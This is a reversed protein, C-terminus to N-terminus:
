ATVLIRRYSAGRDRQTLAIIKYYNLVAYSILSNHEVNLTERYLALARSAEPTSPVKRDFIYHPTSRFALEPKTVPVPLPNESWGFGLTAFNQRM